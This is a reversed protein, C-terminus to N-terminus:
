KGYFAKGAMVDDFTPLNGAMSKIMEKENLSYCQHNGIVVTPHYQHQWYPSVDTRHYWQCGFTIDPIPPQLGENAAIMRGAMLIALMWREENYVRDHKNDKTWSFMPTWKGTRKDKRQEYVVKCYQDEFGEAAVKPGANEWPYLTGDVRNKTAHIVLWMGPESEGRSEFYINCALCTVANDGPHNCDFIMNQPDTDAHVSLSYCFLAVFCVVTSIVSVWSAVLTIGNWHAIREETTM